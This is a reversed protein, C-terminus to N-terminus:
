AAFGISALYRLAEDREVLAMKTSCTRTWRVNLDGRDIAAFFKMKSFGTIDCLARLRVPPGDRRLEALTFRSRHEERESEAILGQAKSIM